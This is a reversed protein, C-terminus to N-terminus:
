RFHVSDLYDFWQSENFNNTTGNMQILWFADECQYAGCLYENVGSELPLTFRLYIYDLREAHTARGELGYLELLQHVYDELTMTRGNDIDSKDQRLGCIFIQENEMAFNFGYLSVGESDSVDVMDEPVDMILEINTIEKTANCGTLSLVMLVAFVLCIAKKM